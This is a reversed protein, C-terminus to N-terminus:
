RLDVIATTELEKFRVLEAHGQSCLSSEQELTVSEKVLTNMWRCARNMYSARMKNSHM